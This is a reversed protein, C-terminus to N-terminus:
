STEEALFAKEWKFWVQIRIGGEMLEGKKGSGFTVDQERQIRMQGKDTLGLRAVKNM